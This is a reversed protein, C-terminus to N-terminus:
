GGRKRRTYEDPGFGPAELWERTSGLIVAPAKQLEVVNRSGTLMKNLWAAAPTGGTMSEIVIPASQEHDLLEVLLDVDDRSIGPPANHVLELDDFGARKTKFQLDQQPTTEVHSRKKRETEAEVSVM